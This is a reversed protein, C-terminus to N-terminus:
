TRASPSSGVSRASCAGLAQADALKAVGAAIDASHVVTRRLDRGGLLGAALRARAPHDARRSRELPVALPAVNKAKAMWTQDIETLEECSTPRSTRCSTACCTSRTRPPTSGTAPRQPAPGGDQRRAPRRSADVRAISSWRPHRRPDLRRDLAAGRQAAGEGADERRRRPGRRRAAPGPDQVVKRRTSTASSPSRPTPSSTPSRRPLAVVFADQDEGPVPACSSSATSSCTSAARGSSTPSSTRRSGRGSRRTRSRRTRSGTRRREAPPTPQLDRDDYDVAVAATVDLPETLPFLM